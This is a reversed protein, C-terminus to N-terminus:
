PLSIRTPDQSTAGSQKAAVLIEDRKHGLEVRVLAAALRMREVRLM